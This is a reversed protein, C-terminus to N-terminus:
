DLRRSPLHHDDFLMQIEEETLGKEYLNNIIIAPIVGNKLIFVKNFWVLFELPDEVGENSITIIRESFDCIGSLYYCVVLINDNVKQKDEVTTLTTEWEALKTNFVRFMDTSPYLSIDILRYLDIPIISKTSKHVPEKPLWGNLKTLILKCKRERITYKIEGHYRSLLTLIVTFYSIRNRLHELLSPHTATMVELKCEEMERNINWIRSLNSASFEALESDSLNRPDPKEELKCINDVACFNDM